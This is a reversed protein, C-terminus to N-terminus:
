KILLAAFASIGVLVILFGVFFWFWKSVKFGSYKIAGFIFLFAFLVASVPFLYSDNYFSV